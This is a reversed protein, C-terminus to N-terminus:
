CKFYAELCIEMNTLSCESVLGQSEELREGSARCAGVYLGDWIQFIDASVSGFMFVGTGGARSWMRHAMAQEKSVLSSAGSRLNSHKASCKAEVLYATGGGICIYDGDQAPLYSGASGTDYLRVARFKSEEEKEKFYEELKGEFWKGLHQSSLTCAKALSKTTITKM